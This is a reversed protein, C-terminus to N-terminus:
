ATPLVGCNWIAIAKLVVHRYNSFHKVSSMLVGEDLAAIDQYNLEDIYRRVLTRNAESTM